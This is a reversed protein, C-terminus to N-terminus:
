RTWNEIDKALNKDTAINAQIVQDVQGKLTTFAEAKTGANTQGVELTTQTETVISEYTAGQSAFLSVVEDYSLEQYATFDIAEWLSKAKEVSFM